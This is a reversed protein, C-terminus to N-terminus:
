FVPKFLGLATNIVVIAWIAWIWPKGRNILSAITDEVEPTSGETLLRTFAPGFPKFMFNVVILIVITLGYLAVKLRLWNDPFLEGASFSVILAVIVVALLVYNWIDEIRRLKKGWEPATPRHVNWVLWGWAIGLAWIVILWPVGVPAWGKNHAITMGTPVMLTMALRPFIDVGQLIRALVARQPPSYDRHLILIAAYYTGMDAGLWFAMLLVHFFIFLTTWDM